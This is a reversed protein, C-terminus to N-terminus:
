GHAPRVSNKEQADWLGEYYRMQMAGGVGPWDFLEELGQELSEFNGDANLGRLEVNIATVKVDAVVERLFGAYGSKDAAVRAEIDKTESVRKAKYTVELSGQIAATAVLVTLTFMPASDTKM